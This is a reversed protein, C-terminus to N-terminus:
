RLLTMKRVQSFARGGEAPVVQIRYIYIGSAVDRGLHDRGDWSVTHLGAKENRNVLTRIEQGLLNYIKLTVFGPEGLRFKIETIPNFPNPYNQLRELTQPVSGETASPSTNSGELTQIAFVQSKAAELLLLPM